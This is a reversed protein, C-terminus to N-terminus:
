NDKFLEAMLLTVTTSFNWEKEQPLREKVLQNKHNTVREGGKEISKIIKIM